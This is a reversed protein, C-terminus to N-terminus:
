GGRQAPRSEGPLFPGLFVETHFAGGSSPADSMHESVKKSAKVFPDSVSARGACGRRM